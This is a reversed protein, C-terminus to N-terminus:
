VFDYKIQLENIENRLVIFTAIGFTLHGCFFILVGKSVKNDRLLQALLIFDVLVIGYIGIYLVFTIFSIILIKYAIKYNKYLNQYFYKDRIVEIPAKNKRMFRIVYIFPWIGLTLFGVTIFLTGLIVNNERMKQFGLIFTAIVVLLAGIGIVFTIFGWFYLRKILHYIKDYQIIQREVVIEKVVEDNICEVNIIKDEVLEVIDGIKLLQLYYIDDIIMNNELIVVENNIDIVKCKM